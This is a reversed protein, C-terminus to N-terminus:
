ESGTNKASTSQHASEKKGSNFWALVFAGLGLIMAALGHKFHHHDSGSEYGPIWTQLSGAPTVWYYVAVAILLIGLLVLVISLPKKM